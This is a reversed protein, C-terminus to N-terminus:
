QKTDIGGHMVGQGLPRGIIQAAEIGVDLHQQTSGEVFGPSHRFLSSGQRL